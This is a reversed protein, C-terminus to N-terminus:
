GDGRRLLYSPHELGTPPYFKYHTFVFGLKELMRKSGENRPNHGAFLADVRLTEFAYAIVAKGAEMGLGRGWRSPKLHVGFELINQEQDYPRLGCCGAFEDDDLLFIPWYQIGHECQFAMQKNLLASVDDESLQPRSDIYRTVEPDGWLGIALALDQENWLRFGLRESRLFYKAAM